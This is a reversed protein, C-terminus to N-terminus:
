LLERRRFTWVALFLVASTYVVFYALVLFLSSFELPLAYIAQVKFDFATLNPLLYYLAEILWRSLPALQSGYDGRVFEIVEQSASGVLYVALTGFVPLFFSTSLSSFFLAVAAILVAKLGDGIIAAIINFWPIPTSSPYQHAVLPIVLLAVAGLVLTGLFLFSAIGAFKGLVYGARSLPLGLVSSTYRREIDRWISTAGLFIALLLLTVSISSLALTVGLEQVQRMSFLSFVPVLLFMLGAVGLLAQLIRDRLASRVTVGLLLRYQYLNMM